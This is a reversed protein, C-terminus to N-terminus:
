LDLMAATGFMDCREKMPENGTDRAGRTGHHPPPVVARHRGLYVRFTLAHETLQAVADPRPESRHDVVQRLGLDIAEDIPDGPEFVPM